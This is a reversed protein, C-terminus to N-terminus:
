VPRESSLSRDGEGRWPATPEDLDALYVLVAHATLQELSVEQRRTERVLMREVEPDLAVELDAAPAEPPHERRFRPLELPKRGSRLRRAYHLLATRVGAAVDTGLHAEIGSRAFSGLTVRMAKAEIVLTDNWGSPIPAVEEGRGLIRGVEDERGELM